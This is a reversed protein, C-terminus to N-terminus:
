ECELALLPWRGGWVTVEYTQEPDDPNRDILIGEKRDTSLASVSDGDFRIVSAAHKLLKSVSVDVAGCDESLKTLFFGHENSLREAMCSALRFVLGEENQPFFKRYCVARPDTAARYGQRFTALLTDTEHLSVFANSKIPEGLADSLGALFSPGALRGRNMRSLLRIRNQRTGNRKKVKMQTKNSDM